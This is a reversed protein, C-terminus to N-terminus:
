AAQQGLAKPKLGLEGHLVFVTRTPDNPEPVSLIHGIHQLVWALSVNSAGVRVQVPVDVDAAAQPQLQLLQAANRVIWVAEAWTWLGPHCVQCRHCRVRYSM